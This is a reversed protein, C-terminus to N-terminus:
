FMGNLEFSLICERPEIRLSDFYEIKTASVTTMLAKDLTSIFKHTSM